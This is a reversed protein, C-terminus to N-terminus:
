LQDHLLRRLESPDILMDYEYSKAQQDSPKEGILYSYEHGLIDAFTYFPRRIESHHLEIISLSDTWIMGTLGAGHPAVVGDVSKFLEIQESLSYEECYVTEIDFEDLIPSIEDFNIVKRRDAKQRSIYVWGRKDNFRNSTCEINSRMWRLSGPTPEPASPVVLTDIDMKNEGWNIISHNDFGLLDIAERAFSPIHEPVILTVDDGTEREYFECGRLKPLQEIMWHYFNQMGKGPHIVVATDIDTGSRSGTVKKYLNWESMVIKSVKSYMNGHYRTCGIMDEIYKGESTKGAPYQRPLDVNNVQCVFPKRFIFNFHNRINQRDNPAINKSLSANIGDTDDPLEWYNDAVSKLEGSDHVFSSYNKRIYYKLSKRILFAPTKQPNKLGKYLMKKM